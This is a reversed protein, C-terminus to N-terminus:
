GDAAREADLRAALQLYQDHFASVQRRMNEIDGDNNLVDDAIALRQPRPAQASIIADVESATLDDRKLVRARQAAEPCDVVLVRTINHNRSKEALLPIALLCYPATVENLYADIRARIKPHLIAELTHRKADDEFVLRRLCGRDLAGDAALVTPGFEAAIERLGENGPLVVERAVIDADIVPVGLKKFEDTVITKGAGIGGTVGIVLTPRM